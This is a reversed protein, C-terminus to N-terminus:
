KRDQFLRELEVDKAVDRVERVPPGRKELRTATEKRSSRTAAAGSPRRSPM